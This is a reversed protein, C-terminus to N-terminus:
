VPLKRLSVRSGLSSGPYSVLSNRAKEFKRSSERVEELKISGEKELKRSSERVKM